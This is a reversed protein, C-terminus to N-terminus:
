NKSSSGTIFGYFICSTVGLGFLCEEVRLMSFRMASGSSVIFTLGSFPSSGWIRKYDYFDGILALLSLFSLGTLYSTGYYKSASSGSLEIQMEEVDRWFLCRRLRFALLLDLPVVAWDVTLFAFSVLMV